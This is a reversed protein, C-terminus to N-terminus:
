CPLYPRPADIGHRSGFGRADQSPLKPATFGAATNHHFIVGTGTRLSLAQPSGPRPPSSTSSSRAPVEQAYKVKSHVRYHMGSRVSVKQINPRHGGGKRRKAGSAQDAGPGPGPRRGRRGPGSSARTGARRPATLPLFVRRTGRPRTYTACPDAGLRVLREALQKKTNGAKSSKCQVTQCTRYGRGNVM